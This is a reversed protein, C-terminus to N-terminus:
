MRARVRSGAWTIVGSYAEDPEIRSQDIPKKVGNSVFAPQMHLAPM